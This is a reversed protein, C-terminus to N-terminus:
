SQEFNLNVNKNLLDVSLEKRNITAKLKKEKILKMFYCFIPRENLM